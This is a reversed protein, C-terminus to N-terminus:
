IFIELQSAAGPPLIGPAQQNPQIPSSQNLPHGSELSYPSLLQPFCKADVEPRGWAHTCVQVYMQTFACSCVHIHAYWVCSLSFLSLPTFIQALLLLHEYLCILLMMLSRCPISPHTAECHRQAGSSSHTFHLCSSAAM